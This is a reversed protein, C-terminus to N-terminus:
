FLYLGLLNRIKKYYIFKTANINKLLYSTAGARLAGEVLEKEKFSTLAIICIEPCKEHIIQTATVGDMGPMILDMLVVDPRLKECLEVAEEGKGAEGVLTVDDSSMLVAGLGSRVVTHDDVLLVRINDLDTM